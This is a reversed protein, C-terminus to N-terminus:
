IYFIKVELGRNGMRTFKREHSVFSKEKGASPEGLITIRISQCGTDREGSIKEKEGV